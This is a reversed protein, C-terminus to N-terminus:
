HLARCKYLLQCPSNCDCNTLSLAVVTMVIIVGGPRRYYLQETEIYLIYMNLVIIFSLSLM